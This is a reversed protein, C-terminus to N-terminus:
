LTHRAGRLEFPAQKQAAAVLFPLGIHVAFCDGLIKAKLLQQRLAHAHALEGAEFADINGFGLQVQDHQVVQLRPPRREGCYFADVENGIGFGAFEIHALCITLVTNPPSPAAIGRITMAMVLCQNLLQPNGDIALLVELEGQQLDGVQVGHWLLNIRAFAVPFRHQHGPLKAVVEVSLPM